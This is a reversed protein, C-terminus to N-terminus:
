AIELSSECHAVFKEDSIKRIVCSFACEHIQEALSACDALDRDDEVADAVARTAKAKDGHGAVLVRGFGHGHEIAFLDITALDDDVLGLRLGGAGLAAKTAATALAATTTAKATTATAVATTATTVASIATAATATAAAELTADLARSKLCSIELCFLGATFAPRKQKVKV